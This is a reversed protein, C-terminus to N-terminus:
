DKVFKLVERSTNSTIEILYLGPSLKDVGQLRYRSVGVPLAQQMLVRGSIDMVRATASSRQPPMSIDLYPGAPNNLLRYASASAGIVIRVSRSYEFRGDKDLQRLRYQYTGASLGPDTFQYVSPIGKTAVEGIKAYDIGNTSREVDFRLFNQEEGTQWRLRAEDGSASGNFYLLKVPFAAASRILLPYDEAQGYVPNACATNLPSVGYVTSVDELIRMRLVVDKSASAPINLTFPVTFGSPRQTTGSTEVVSSVLEDTNNFSGDNNFDIWVKAQELNWGYLRYSGSYVQGEVLYFLRQCSAAHTTYGADSRANGSTVSIGNLTLNMIGAVNGALGDAGTVPSCSAAGPASFPNLPYSASIAWTGSYARSPSSGAAALMRTKQGATFLTYLNGYGMFNNETNISYDTTTCPNTGTRSSFSLTVPDTDCVKDGQVLCDGDSLPCTSGSSGEFPHYVNLAHGLEHPLTKKNAAMQTALMITGDYNDPAGPFYAFGAYFTGGTGDQGDLRNVVWINYFIQPDWRILNKVALEDVGTTNEVNVGESVYNTLSSGNVRNIGSTPSCNPDRTALQFQIEIDGVGQIGPLTGNYIQNMYAIAGQIQADTPNYLTGVADGTHVVHVVVPITYQAVNTQEQHIGESIGRPVKSQIITELADIRVKYTPTSQVLRNHLAYFACKPQALTRLSILILILLLAHTRLLV